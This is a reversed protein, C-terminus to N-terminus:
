VEHDSDGDSDPENIHYQRKVQSRVIRRYVARHKELKKTREAEADRRAYSEPVFQDVMKFLRYCSKFRKMRSRDKMNAKPAFTKVKKRGAHTLYGNEVYHPNNEAILASRQKEEFLNGYETLLDVDVKKRKLYKVEDGLGKLTIAHPDAREGTARTRPRGRGRPEEEM